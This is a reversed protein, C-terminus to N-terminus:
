RRRRRVAGLGALAVGIIALTGPEPTGVPPPPPPPPPPLPSPPNSLTFGSSWAGGSTDNGSITLSTATQTDGNGGMTGLAYLDFGGTTAPDFAYSETTVSSLDFTFGGVTVLADVTETVQDGATPNFSITGSITGAEGSVSSLTGASASWFLPDDSFTITHTTTNVTPTGLVEVSGSAPGFSAAHAAPITALGVAAMGFVSAALQMKMSIRM